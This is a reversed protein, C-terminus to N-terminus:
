FVLVLLVITFLAPLAHTKMRVPRLVKGAVVKLERNRAIMGRAAYYRYDISGDRVRAIASAKKDPM